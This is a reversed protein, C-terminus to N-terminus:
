LRSLNGHIGFAEVSCKLNYKSLLSAWCTRVKKDHVFVIDISNLAAVAEFSSGWGTSRYTMLCQFIKIKDKRKESRDQLFQGIIVAAIPILIVALLNILDTLKM